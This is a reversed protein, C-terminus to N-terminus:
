LAGRKFLKSFIKIPIYFIFISMIFFMILIKYFDVRYYYDNTIVSNDLCVPLTSYNSWTGSGDKYYYDANFYYDRYSYSTNNAPVVNYGRIVNENQVVYCKNYTSDEPVFIQYM